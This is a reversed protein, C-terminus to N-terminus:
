VLNKNKRWQIIGIISIILIFFNIPYVAWLGAMAGSATFFIVATISFVWGFWNRRVLLIKSWIQLLGALLVLCNKLDFVEIMSRM